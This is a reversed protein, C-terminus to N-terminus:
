KSLKTRVHDTIDALNKTKSDWSFAIVSSTPINYQRVTSKLLGFDRFYGFGRGDAEKYGKDTIEWLFRNQLFERPWRESPYYWILLTQGFGSQFPMIKEEEPLGYYSKDSETYFVVNGPLNPYANKITNLIAKRGQGLHVLDDVQSRLTFIHAMFFFLPVILIASKKNFLLKTMVGFIIATGILPIYLGRPSLFVASLEGTPIFMLPLFSLVFILLGVLLSDRIKGKQRRILIVLSFLLLLSLVYLFPTVVREQLFIDYATIGKIPVFKFVGLSLIKDALNLIIEQPLIAQAVGTLLIKTFNSLFTHALTFIQTFSGTLLIRTAAYALGAFGVVLLIKKTLGPKKLVTLAPLLIFLFLATEKFGIALVFSVTSILFDKKKENKLWLTWFYVTVISFITAMQTPLSTGVWLVAQSASSAVIFFLLAFLAVIKDKSLELALLLVLVSASAHLVLSLLVYPMYNLGLAAYRVYNVAPTWFLFHGLGRGFMSTYLEKVLEKTGLGQLSYFNGLGAWEDQQFFANWLGWYSTFVLVSIIIFVVFNNKLPNIKKM